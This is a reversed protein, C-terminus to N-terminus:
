QQETFTITPVMLTSVTTETFKQPCQQSMGDLPSPTQKAVLLTALQSPNEKTSATSSIQAMFLQPLQQFMGILQLLIPRAVLLIVHLSLHGKTLDIFM